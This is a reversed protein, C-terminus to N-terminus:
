RENIRHEVDKHQVYMLHATLNYSLLSLFLWKSKIQKKERERKEARMLEVDDVDDTSLRQRRWYLYTLPTSSGGHRCRPRLASDDTSALVLMMVMLREVM